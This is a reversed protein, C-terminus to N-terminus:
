SALVSSGTFFEFLDEYADYVPLDPNEITISEPPRFFAGRDAHRLMTLDNYSDGTAFVKYNLSRFADVAHRKGNEQRLHYDVIRDADISLSNCLLMPFDLQAMLPGAFEVFTDSLIAVPMAARLDRIFKAAGPLPAMRGIVDQIKSLTIQHRDLLELRTRMLKHYDPIDRTTLMLDAVGCGRAVNQWVEPILVGELDLCAIRMDIHYWM